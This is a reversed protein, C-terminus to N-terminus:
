VLVDVDYVCSCSQVYLPICKCVYLLAASLSQVVELWIPHPLLYDRKERSMDLQDALPHKIASRKFHSAREPLPNVPSTSM